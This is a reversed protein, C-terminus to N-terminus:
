FIININERNSVFKFFLQKKKLYFNDNLILNIM